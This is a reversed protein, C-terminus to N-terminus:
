RDARDRLKSLDGTPQTWFIGAGGSGATDPSASIRILTV